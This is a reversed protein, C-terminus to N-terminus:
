SRHLFGVGLEVGQRVPIPREVDIAFSLIALGDVEEMKLLLADSHLFMYDVLVELAKRIIPQERVLLALAGLNSLSRQDALRLGFDAKGSRKASEELLRGIAMVSVKVEPDSLCAPPLGCEAVMRHPDLGVSRAVEVYNSLAASRILRPMHAELWT